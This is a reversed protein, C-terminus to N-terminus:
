MPVPCPPMSVENLLKLVIISFPERRTLGYKMGIIILLM